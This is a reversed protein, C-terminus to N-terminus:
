LGGRSLGSSIARCRWRKGGRGYLVNSCGYVIFLPNTVSRGGTAVM